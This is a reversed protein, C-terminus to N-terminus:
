ENDKLKYTYPSNFTSSNHWTQKPEPTPQAIQPKKAYILALSLGSLAGAIHGEWSIKPDIPLLGWVVSGYLLVIILAFIKSQQRTDLIGALFLFFVLGYVIGSAGIHVASAGILWLGLGSSFYLIWFIRSFNEPYQYNLITILVLLPASNNFLHEWGGHILPYTLITPLWRFQRPHIGLWGLDTEALQSYLHIFTIFLVFATGPLFLYLNKRTHTM